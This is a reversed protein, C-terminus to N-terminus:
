GKSCAELRRLEDLKLKESSNLGEYKQRNTKRQHCTSCLSQWNDQCWLLWDDGNHPVIHDVVSAAVAVGKARCLVCLPHRVVYANRANRWRWGHDRVTEVARM